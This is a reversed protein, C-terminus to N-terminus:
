EGEPFDYSDPDHPDLGWLALYEELLRWSTIPFSIEHYMPPVISPEGSYWGVTIEASRPWVERREDSPTDRDGPDITRVAQAELTATMGVCVRGSRTMVYQEPADVEGEVYLYRKHTNM